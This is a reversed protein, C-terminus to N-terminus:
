ADSGVRTRPARRQSPVQRVLPADIAKLRDRLARMLIGVAYSAQLPVVANGLCRLMDGRGIASGTVYGAPYDMMWEPLMPNLARGALIEMIPPWPAPTGTIAEWNRVAPAFKGWDDGLRHTATTLDDGGSGVRTARAYDPGSLSLKAEPTPMRPGPPTIKPPTVETFAGHGDVHSSGAQHEPYDVTSRRALVFVRARQHPAGVDSARVVTWVGTYGLAALDALVEPLGRKVHGRVNELLVFEPGVIRIVDRVYPWLHRPDANGLRRGAESFPQCPYGATVWTAGVFSLFADPDRVDDLIPVDPHHARLVTQAAEDIEVHVVVRGGTVDILGKDLGGVGSCISVVTDGAGTM